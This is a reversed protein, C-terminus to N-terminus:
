APDCFKWDVTQQKPVGKCDERPYLDVTNTQITEKCEGSTRACLGVDETTKWSYAFSGDQNIFNLCMGKPYMFCKWGGIAFVDTTRVPRDLDIHEMSLVRYEGRARASTVVWLPGKSRRV